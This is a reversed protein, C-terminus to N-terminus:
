SHRRVCSIRYCPSPFNCTAAEPVTVLLHEPVSSLALPQVGLDSISDVSISPVATDDVALVLPFSAIKCPETAHIPPIASTSLNVVVDSLM